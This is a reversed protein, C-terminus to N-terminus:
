RITGIVLLRSVDTAGACTSLALIAGEDEPELFIEGNKRLYDLIAARSFFGPNFLIDLDGRASVVAFLRVSYQRTETTLSGDRHRDFFSRDQFEDLSGFMAGGSMHHGYVLNYEDTFAPDNRYDLFISGSLAFDGYPSKNLYEVNDEGQFIPFDVGSDHITIWAVQKETIKREATLLQGQEPRYRLVSKDQANNYLWLNDLLSYTGILLLLICVIVIATDLTKDLVRVVRNVISM